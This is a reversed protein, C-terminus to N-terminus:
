LYLQSFVRTASTSFLLRCEEELISDVDAAVGKLAEALKSSLGTFSGEPVALREEFGGLLHFM